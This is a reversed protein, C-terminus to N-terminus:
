NEISGSIILFEINLIIMEEDLWFHKEHTVGVNFIIGM